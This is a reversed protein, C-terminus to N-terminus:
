YYYNTVNFHTPKATVQIKKYWEIVLLLPVTNFDGVFILPVTKDSVKAHKQLFAKSAECAFACQQAKVHPYSPDWHIHTNALLLMESTNRHQLLTLLVGERLSLLKKKFRGTHVGRKLMSNYYVGESAIVAFKSNDIFTAVAMGEHSSKQKAKVKDKFYICSYGAETFFPELNEGFACPLVEQLAVIGAEYHTLEEKLQEWRYKWGRLRLPCYNHKDSLALREGDALINYSVVRFSKSAETNGLLVWKRGLPSSGDVSLSAMPSLM